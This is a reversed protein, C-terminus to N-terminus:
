RRAIGRGYGDVSRDRVLGVDDVLDRLIASIRENMTDRQGYMCKAYVKNLVEVSHGAREAM